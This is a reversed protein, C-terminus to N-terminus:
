LKRSEGDTRMKEQGVRKISLEARGEEEEEGEEGREGKQEM